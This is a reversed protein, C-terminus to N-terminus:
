EYGLEEKENLVADLSLVEFIFTLIFLIRHIDYSLQAVNWPRGTGSAFDQMLNYVPNLVPSYRLFIVITLVVMFGKVRRGFYFENGINLGSVFLIINCLVLLLYAYGSVPGVGSSLTILLFGVNIGLLSLGSLKLLKIETISILILVPISTIVLQNVVDMIIPTPMYYLENNILVEPIVFYTIIFIVTFAVGIYFRKM